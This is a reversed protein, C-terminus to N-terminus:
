KKKNKKKKRLSFKSRDDESITEDREYQNQMEYLDEATAEDKLTEPDRAAMFWQTDSFAEDVGGEENEAGDGDYDSTSDGAETGGGSLAAM